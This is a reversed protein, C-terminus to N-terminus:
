LILGLSQYTADPYSWNKIGSNNRISYYQTPWNDLAHQIIRPRFPVYITHYNKMVAPCGDEDLQRLGNLNVGIIPLGKEQALEIEWKVYQYKYRTGAGILVVVQKTDSFRERLGRKVSTEESDTYIERTPHVDYFNFSINENSKWAQMLRYQIIDRGDFIVYTKNRYSM